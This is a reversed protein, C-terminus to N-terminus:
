RGIAVLLADFVAIARRIAVKSGPFSRIWSLKGVVVPHELHHEVVSLPVVRFVCRVLLSADEGSYLDIRRPSRMPGNPLIGKGGVTCAELYAGVAEAAAHEHEMM